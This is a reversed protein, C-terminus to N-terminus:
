NLLKTPLLEQRRLLLSLNHAAEPHEPALSLVDRLAQEAATFDQGEQLLAQSLVVRPAQAQPSEAIVEALLGRPIGEAVPPRAGEAHRFPKM